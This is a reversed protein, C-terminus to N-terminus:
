KYKIIEDQVEQQLAMKKLIALHPKAWKHMFGDLQYGVPHTISGIVLPAEM